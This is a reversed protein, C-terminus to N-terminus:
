PNLYIQPLFYNFCINFHSIALETPTTALSRPILKLKEAPASVIKNELHVSGDQPGGSKSDTAYRPSKKKPHVRAPYHLQGTVEM